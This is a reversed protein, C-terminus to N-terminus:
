DLEHRPPGPRLAGLDLHGGPRRARRREVDLHAERRPPVLARAFRDRPTRQARGAVLVHNWPRDPCELGLRRPDSCGDLALPRPGRPRVTLLRSLLAFMAVLWGAVNSGYMSTWGPSSM